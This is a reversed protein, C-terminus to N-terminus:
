KQSHGKDNLNFEPYLRRACQPCISHSFDAESHSTIYDEIQQWGGEEDRIKKCSACIPLLGSLKRVQLLADELQAILKEREKAAKHKVLAIEICSRLEANDYPKVLYGYPHTRIAKDLVAPDNLCTIFIIPVDSKASIQEAAEIGNMDGELLIDMLVLDPQHSDQGEIAKLGTRAIDCVKYGFSELRAELVAAVNIDDEVVLIGAPTVPVKKWDNLTRSQLLEIKAGSQHQTDFKLTV